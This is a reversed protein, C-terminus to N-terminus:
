AQSFFNSGVANGEAVLNKKKRKLTPRGNM